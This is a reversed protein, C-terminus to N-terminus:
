ERVLNRHTVMVGKLPSTRRSTFQVFCLNEPNVQPLAIPHGEGFPVTPPRCVREVRTDVAIPEEITERTSALTLRVGCEGLAHNPDRNPRPQQYNKLNFSVRPYIPVSILSTVTARLFGM